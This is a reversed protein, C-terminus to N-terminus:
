GQRRRQITLIDEAIKVLEAEKTQIQSDLSGESQSITVTEIIDAILVYLGPASELHRCITLLCEALANSLADFSRNEHRTVATEYTDGDSDVIEITVRARNM